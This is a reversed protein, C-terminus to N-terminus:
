EWSFPSFPNTQQKFILPSEARQHGVLNPCLHSRKCSIKSLSFISCTKYLNPGSHHILGQGKPPGPEKNGYDFQNPLELKNFTILPANSLPYRGGRIARPRSLMKVGPDSCPPPWAMGAFGVATKAINPKGHTPITRNERHTDEQDRTTGIPPRGRPRKVGWPLPGRRRPSSKYGHTGQGPVPFWNSLDSIKGGM